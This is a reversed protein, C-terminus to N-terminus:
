AEETELFSIDHSTGYLSNVTVEVNADNDAEIELVVRKKFADNFQTEFHYNSSVCPAYKRSKASNSHIAADIRNLKVQLILQSTPNLFDCYYSGLTSAPKNRLLYALEDDNFKGEESAWYRFNQRIIDGNYKNLDTERMEGDRYPLSVKKEDVGISQIMERTLQNLHSPTIAKLKGGPPLLSTLILQNDDHINYHKKLKFILTQLRQTVPFTLYDENDTFGEFSGDDNMKRAIIFSHLNFEPTHFVDCWRLACVTKSELGTSLRIIVGLYATNGEDLKNLAFEEAKKYESKTFHKKTLANRVQAFLKECVHTQRLADRLNNSPCYGLKVAQDLATSIIELRAWLSNQTLEPYASILLYECGEVTLDGVRQEGILTKMMDSFIQYASNSYFNSLSPYLYWLTKLAINQGSLYETYHTIIEERISTSKLTSIEDTKASKKPFIFSFPYENGLWNLIEDDPVSTAHKVTSLIRRGRETFGSNVRSEPAPECVYAELRPRSQNNKPYTKSCWVVIDPTIEHSFSPTRERGIPHRLAIERSYQKRLSQSNPSLESRNLLVPKEHMPSLAQTKLDTNLTYTHLEIPKSLFTEPSSPNLIYRLFVKRRPYTSNNIGQPILGIKCIVAIENDWATKNEVHQSVDLVHMVSNECCHQKLASLCNDRDVLPLQTGSLLIHSYKKTSLESNHIWESYSEFRINKGVEPAYTKDNAQYTLVDSISKSHFVFTINRNFHFPSWLINRVFHPSPFLILINSDSNPLLESFFISHILSCELTVDNPLISAETKNRENAVGDKKRLSISYILELPSFKAMLRLAKNVLKIRSDGDKIQMFNYVQQEHSIRVSQANFCFFDHIMNLSQMRTLQLDNFLISLLDNLKKDTTGLVRPALNIPNLKHLNIASYFAKFTESRLPRPEKCRYIHYIFTFVDDKEMEESSERNHSPRIDQFSLLKISLIHHLFQHLDLKDEHSLNHYAKMLAQPDCVIDPTVYILFDELSIDIYKEVEKYRINKCQQKSLPLLAKQYDEYKKSLSIVAELPEEGSSLMYSFTAYAQLLQSSKFQKSVGLISSLLSEYHSRLPPSYM